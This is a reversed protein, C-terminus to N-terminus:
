YSATSKDQLQAEKHAFILLVIKRNEQDSSSSSSENQSSGPQHIASFVIYLM